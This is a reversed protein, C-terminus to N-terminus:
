SCWSRILPSFYWSAGFVVDVLGDADLDVVKPNSFFPQYFTQRTVIVPRFTLRGFIDRGKNIHVLM